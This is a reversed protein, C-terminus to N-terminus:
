TKHDQTQLAERMKEADEGLVHHNELLEQITRTFYDKTSPDNRIARLVHARENETIDITRFTALVFFREFAAWSNSEYWERSSVVLRISHALIKLSAEASAHRVKPWCYALNPLRDKLYRLVKDSNIIVREDACLARVWGSPTLELDLDGERSSPLFMLCGSRALAWVKPPIKRVPYATAKEISRIRLPTGNLVIEVLEAKLSARM